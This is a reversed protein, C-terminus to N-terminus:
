KTKKPRGRRPQPLKAPRLLKAPSVRLATALLVLTALSPSRTGGELRELYKKDIGVLEALQEQTLSLRQRLARINAAVSERYKAIEDSPM